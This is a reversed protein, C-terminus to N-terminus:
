HSPAMSGILKRIRGVLAARAPPYGDSLDPLDTWTDYAAGKPAVLRLACGLAIVRAGSRFDQPLIPQPAFPGVTIGDKALGRRVPSPIEPEPIVGRAIARISLGQAQALRNFHSAAVVSKSSGHDCVFIVVAQAQAQQPASGGQILCALAWGVERYVM